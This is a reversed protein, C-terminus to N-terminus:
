FLRTGRDCVRRIPISTEMTAVGEIRTLHATLFHEFEALDRVVVRLLYDFAGTMLWCDVVESRTRIDKEFRVLRDEVQRDLRVSVFANLLYGLKTEDIRATYGLIYGDAELRKLRRVCPSASLGVLEALEQHNLRANRHLEALIRRDISDLNAAM